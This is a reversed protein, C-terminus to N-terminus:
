SGIERSSQRNPEVLKIQCQQIHNYLNDSKIANYMNVLGKGGAGRLMEKDGREWHLNLQIRKVPGTLLILQQRYTFTSLTLFSPICVPLGTLNCHFVLLLFPSRGLSDHNDMTVPSLKDVGLLHLKLGRREDGKVVKYLRGLVISNYLIKALLISRNQRILLSRRSRLQAQWEDGGEMYFM